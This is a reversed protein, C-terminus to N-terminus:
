RWILRMVCQVGPAPRIKVHQQFFGNRFEASIRKRELLSQRRAAVRQVVGDFGYDEAFFLLRIGDLHFRLNKVRRAGRAAGAGSIRGDFAFLRFLASHKDADVFLGGFCGKCQKLFLGRRMRKEAFGVM